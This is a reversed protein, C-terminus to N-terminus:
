RCTAKRRVLESRRQFPLRLLYTMMFALSATIAKPANTSMGVILAHGRHFSRNVCISCDVRSQYLAWSIFGAVQSRRPLGEHFDHQSFPSTNWVWNRTMLLPVFYPSSVHHYSFSPL